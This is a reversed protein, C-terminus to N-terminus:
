RWLSPFRCSECAKRIQKDNAKWRLHGLGLLEYYDREGDLFTQVRQRVPAAAPAKATEQQHKKVDFIGQSRLTVM